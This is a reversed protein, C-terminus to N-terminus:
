LEVTGDANESGAKGLPNEKAGLDKAGLLEGWLKEFALVNLLIEGFPSFKVLEPIIPAM